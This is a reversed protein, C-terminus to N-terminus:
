RTSRGPRRGLVREHLDPPPAIGVSHMAAVLAADHLPESDVLTGDMDWYVAKPMM